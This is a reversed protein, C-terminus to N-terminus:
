KNKKKGRRTKAKAVPASPKKKHKAHPARRPKEEEAQQAKRRRDKAEGEQQRLTAKKQAAALAFDANEELAFDISKEEVNASLVVIRAANGLRYVKGSREGVLAYQEEVYSYYDNEMSSVHVLGEVGNELEVFLGFATVGSIIGDFTEGVFQAMYEVKKLDVTEREAEIALRERASAGAAIEPLLAKLKEQRKPAITGSRFTERLLRHVILDPYRRIPSTFHTYYRAALGFHGLSQAEYRAQKMSRLMVTSIIREETRGSVKRLIEQFLAPDLDEEDKGKLMVKLQFNALLLNLKEIKEMGPQEHVRYIFPLKKTYMHEAVTENAALMFEEIISEALNRERKVLQVPKGESDLKVKIETLDFDISGRRMRRGRLLKCLAEMAELMPLIDANDERLAEDRDVLVKRVINYTLRRHVHIVSPFIEYREVKGDAGIEMECSMALRDEGANLSCIGNSLRTPLMPLVRDVLYVSTGRERAENDLVTNERVYYSVDAIYVGLLYRGGGLAKVYVGDDLDKADDGDVTVIPLARLDRRGEMDEPAIAEPVRESAAVVKKPFELPLGHKKIISLIDVGPDGTMGLVEVIKGEASRRPQPWQTIEVVVKMGIKAGNFYKKAIFVDQGLKPDDPVVFGFSKSSEFTGVIRKNAREVIRIVEGERTRGGGGPLNVRAVVRDRHMAGALLAAPIFVDSEEPTQRVIPIVFGSGKGTVQLMGVVLNMREPTGLTGHRTRIIAASEELTKLVDWFELLQAGSLALAEALDEDSLPRYAEHRMYELIREKIEM